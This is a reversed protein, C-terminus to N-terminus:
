LEYSPEINNEGLERDLRIESKLTSQVTIYSGGGGLTILCIRDQNSCYM